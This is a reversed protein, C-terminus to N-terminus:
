FTMNRFERQFKELSATPAKLQRALPISWNMQRDILDLAGPKLRTQEGRFDGAVFHAGGLHIGLVFVGEKVADARAASASLASVTLTLALVSTRLISRM